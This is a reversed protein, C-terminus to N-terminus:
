GSFWSELAAKRRSLARVWQVLEGTSGKKKLTVRVWQILEGASGEKKLTGKGVSDVRWRQRGEQPKNEYQLWVLSFSGTCGLSGQFECCDEQRHRM